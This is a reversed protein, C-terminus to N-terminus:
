KATVPEIVINRFEVACGESQLQLRGRSPKADFGRNVVKGNFSVTVTDNSCVLDVRNWEGLPRENVACAVTNTDRWDPAIDSRCIRDNGFITYTRKGNPDHIAYKGLTRDGVRSSISCGSRNKSVGWFDGTAGLILNVEISEMWVGWFAGDPGTSHFLLGSDPAAGQKGAFQKGGLFRYELSLHYDAFEEESVLSGFEEGTVHIVGNTVTFVGKPDANRGRDRVWTYWGSLDKGNFLARPADVAGLSMAAVAAGVTLFAKMM